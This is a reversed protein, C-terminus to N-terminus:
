RDADVCRDAESGLASIEKVNGGINVLRSTMM